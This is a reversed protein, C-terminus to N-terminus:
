SRSVQTVGGSDDRGSSALAPHLSHVPNGSLNPNTNRVFDKSVEAVAEGVRVEHGVSFPMRTGSRVGIDQASNGRSGLKLAVAVNSTSSQGSEGVDSTSVIRRLVQRRSEHELNCGKLMQLMMPGNDAMGNM